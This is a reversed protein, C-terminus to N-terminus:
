SKVCEDKVEKLQTSSIGDTHPLFVLDVGKKALDVKTKEWRPNGKWDDGIFIVDFGHKELQVEKDLTDAIVAKDVAKLNEIILRRNEEPIVPTKDKYQKVLADSNVAVILYDCYKKANNILNLHGIHFMDYVGQTYGIKYKKM